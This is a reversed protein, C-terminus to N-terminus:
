KGYRVKVVLQGKGVHVVLTTGAKPNATIALTWRHKGAKSFAHGDYSPRTSGGAALTYRKGPVLRYAHHAYRAKLVVLDALVVTTTATATNGAQDTATATFTVKEGKHSQIVTCAALGSLADSGDCTAAPAAVLYPKGATVGGISVTPAATDINVVASASAAGGDTATVSRTVAQAAGQGTLRVPAPCPGTLPASNPTCTFSVTVPGHYWGSASAAADGTVQAGITPDNRTVSASSGLFDSDGAYVAAVQRASGTPVTYSLTATGGSLTATGVPSGAVSFQVQGTPTGGGPAVPTVTASLTSAGVSVANTTLAQIVLVDATDTSVAYTAPGPEYAASLTHSGAALDTLPASAQGGVLTVPAGLATTGDKFQVSGSPTGGASSVTATLTTSQGHVVTTPSASLTTTTPVTVAVCQGTSSDSSPDHASDGSFTARFCYTGAISPTFAVSTAQGDQLAVPGVGLPTGGTSCPAPSTLPGCVTFTVSGDIVGYGTVTATDTLATGVSSTTASPVGTTTSLPATFTVTATGTYSWVGTEFVTGSPGHGSGGGGAAGLSNGGAGGYWGGGGGGGTGSASGGQAASGSAGADSPNTGGGDQSAGGGPTGSCVGPVVGDGGTPGGGAGGTVVPPAVNCVGAGGGGGAVLVRQALSSGGIRVDTAGGGAFLGSGGGNFGGAGGYTGAGGVVVTVQSGPSVAITATARGGPGGFFPPSGNAGTAGFVDFIASTVGAPVTWQQAAGTYDFTVTYTPPTPPPAAAAAATVGPAALLSGVAVGGVMALAVHSRLRGPGM